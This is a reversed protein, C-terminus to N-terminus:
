WSDRWFIVGAFCYASIGCGLSAPSLALPMNEDLRGEDIDHFPEDLMDQSERRVARILRSLMLITPVFLLSMVMLPILELELSGMRFIVLLMYLGFLGSVAVLVITIIRLAQRM